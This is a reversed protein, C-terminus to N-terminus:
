YNNTIQAILFAKTEFPGFRARIGGKVVPYRAGSLVKKFEVIGCDRFEM